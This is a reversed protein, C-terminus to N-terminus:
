RGIRGFSTPLGAVDSDVRWLQGGFSADATEALVGADTMYLASGDFVVNTPIVGVEIHQDFRGDPWLVDIGGGNVTTVFLRGDAAM